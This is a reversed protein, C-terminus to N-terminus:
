AKASNLRSQISYCIKTMGIIGATVFGVLGFFSGYITLMLFAGILLTTTTMKVWGMRETGFVRNCLINLTTMSCGCRKKLMRHNRRSIVVSNMIHMILMSGLFIDLFEILKLSSM